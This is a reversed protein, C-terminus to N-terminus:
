KNGKLLWNTAKPALRDYTGLAGWVPLAVGPNMFSAVPLATSVGRKVWNMATNAAGEDAMFNQGAQAWNYLDWPRMHHTDIKSQNGSGKTVQTILKPGEINGGKAKYVLPAITAGNGYKMRADALASKEAPDAITSMLQDDMIKRLRGIAHVLDGDTSSKTQRGLASYIKRFKAGTIFGNALDKKIQDVREVIKAHVEKTDLGQSETVLNDLEQLFQDSKPIDHKEAISEITAGSKTMADYLVGPTLYNANANGGIEKILGRNLSIQNQKHTSGAFPVDEVAQGVLKIFKDDLLLHPPINFKPDLNKITRALKLTEPNVGSTLKERVANGIPATALEAERGLGGAVQKAAGPASRATAGLLSMDPAIGALKSDDLATGLRQTYDKGTPSQPQVTLASAVRGATQDARRLGEQTGLTGGLVNHAIGAAAGIPAAFTSSLASLGTELGGKIKQGITPLNNQTPQQFAGFENPIQDAKQGGSAPSAPPTLSSASYKAWPGDAYKEWPKM